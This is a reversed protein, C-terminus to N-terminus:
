FATMLTHSVSSLTVECTERNIDTVIAGGQVLCIDNDQYWNSHHINLDEENVDGGLYKTLNLRYYPPIMEDTLITIKITQSYKRLTEAATIGAIGSGIILVNAVDSVQGEIAMDEIVKHDDMSSACHKCKTPPLIGSDIYDCKSCQYRKPGQINESDEELEFSDKPAGCLPCLEPLDDGEHIYGCVICKYVM